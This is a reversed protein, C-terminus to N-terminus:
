ASFGLLFSSRLRFFPAQFLDFDLVKWPTQPQAFRSNNHNPRDGSCVFASSAKQLSLGPNIPGPSPGVRRVFLLALLSTPSNYIRRPTRPMICTSPLPPRGICKCIRTQPQSLSQPPLNHTRSCAQRKDSSVAM